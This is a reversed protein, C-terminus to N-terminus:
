LSEIPRLLSQLYRDTSHISHLRVWLMWESFTTIPIDNKIHKKFM